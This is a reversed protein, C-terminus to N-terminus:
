AAVCDFVARRGEMHNFRAVKGYQQCHREALPLAHGENWVNGVTVYAANGTVDRGSDIAYLSNPGSACGALMLLSILARFM